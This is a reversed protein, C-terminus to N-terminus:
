TSLSGNCLTLELTPSSVAFCCDLVYTQRIGNHSVPPDNDM